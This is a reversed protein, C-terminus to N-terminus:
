KQPSDLAIECGKLYETFAEEPSRQPVTFNGWADHEWDFYAVALQFPYDPNKNGDKWDSTHHQWLLEQFKDSWIAKISM